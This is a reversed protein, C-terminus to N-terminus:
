SSEGINSITERYLRAFHSNSNQMDLMFRPFRDGEQASQQIFGLNRCLRMGDEQDSIAYLHRVIIQQAALEELFTFFGSILRFGIRQTHQEVDMRTAIGIYLDVSKGKEYTLFDGPQLNWSRKKGSMMGELAEPKLPAAHIYGAVQDQRIAVFDLYPNVRYWSIRQEASATQWGMVALVDVIGPADGSQAIRTETTQKEEGTHLFLALETALRDIEKKDFFGESRLPPTYKKIKGKRVYYNFTSENMGLKNRADRPMYYGQPAQKVGSGRKRKPQEM